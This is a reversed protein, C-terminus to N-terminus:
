RRSITYIAPAWTHGGDVTKLLFPATERTAWGVQPSIFDLQKTDAFLSPLLIQTWRRGGDTTRYLVNGETVWGHNMDAFSSPPEHNGTTVMVPTTYVWTAGGDHTAYFVVVTRGSECYENKISYSISVPLVGDRPSFFTPPM